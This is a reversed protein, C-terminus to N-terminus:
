NGDDSWGNGRLDHRRKWLPICRAPPGSMRQRRRSHYLANLTRLFFFSKFDENSWRGSFDSRMLAPKVLKRQDPDRWVRMWTHIVNM